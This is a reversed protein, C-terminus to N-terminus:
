LREWWIRNNTKHKEDKSERSKTSNQKKNKKNIYYKQVAKNCGQSYQFNFGDRYGIEYIKLTYKKFINAMIDYKLQLRGTLNFLINKEIIKRM